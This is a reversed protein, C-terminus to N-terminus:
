ATPGNRTKAEDGHPPDDNRPNQNPHGSTSCGTKEIPVASRGARRVWLHGALRVWPHGALRTELPCGCHGPSVATRDLAVGTQRGLWEPCPGGVRGPDRRVATKPACREGPHPFCPSRDALRRILAASGAPM